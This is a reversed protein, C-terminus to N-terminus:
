RKKIIGVYQKKEPNRINKFYVIKPTINNKKCLDNFSNNDEIDDVILWCNKPINNYFFSLSKLKGSYNKDSDYHILAAKKIQDTLSPIIFKDLGLLLIWRDRNKKQVLFGIDHNQGPYPLDTSILIGGRLNNLIIDTSWGMSVGTEIVLSGKDLSNVISGLLEINGGGGMGIGKSSAIKKANKFYKSNELDLTDINSYALFESTSIANNEYNVKIYNKYNIKSFIKDFLISLEGNFILYFVKAITRSLQM